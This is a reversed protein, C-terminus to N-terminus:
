TIFCVEAVNKNIKKLSKEEFHLSITAQQNSHPTIQKIPNAIKHMNKSLIIFKLRKKYNTSEFHYFSPEM